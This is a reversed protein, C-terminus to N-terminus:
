YLDMHADEDVIGDWVWDSKREQVNDIKKSSPGKGNTSSAAKERENALALLSSFESAQFNKQEEDQKHKTIENEEEEANDMFFPDIYRAVLAVNFHLFNPFFPFSNYEIIYFIPITTCM